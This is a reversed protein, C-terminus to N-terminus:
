NYIKEYFANLNLFYYRISLYYNIYSLILIYIIERCLHSYENLELKNLKLPDISIIKLPLIDYSLPYFKLFVNM